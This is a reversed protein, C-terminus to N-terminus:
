RTLFFLGSFSWMISMKEYQKFTDWKSGKLYSILLTRQVWQAQLLSRSKLSLKEWRVSQQILLTLSSLQSHCWGTVFLTYWLIIQLYSPKHLL